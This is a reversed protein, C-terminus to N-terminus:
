LARDLARMTVNTRQALTRCFTAYSWWFPFDCAPPPELGLSWLARFDLIPYPELHCGHLFVSAMPWGVGKLLLLVEVRFQESPTALAARTVAEIFGPENGACRPQFM